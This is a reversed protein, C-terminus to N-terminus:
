LGRVEDDDSEVVVTLTSVDFSVGRLVVQSRFVLDKYREFAESVILSNGRAGRLRLTLDPDVTLTQDGQSFNKPLPWLYVLTDNLDLNLRSKSVRRRAERAKGADSLPALVFVIGLLLLLLVIGSKSPM